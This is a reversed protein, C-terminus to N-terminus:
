INSFVINSLKLNLKESNWCNLFFYAFYVKQQTNTVIFEITPVIFLKECIKLVRYLKEKWNLITNHLVDTM